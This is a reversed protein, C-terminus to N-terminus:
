LEFLRNSSKSSENQNSYIDLIARVKKLNKGTRVLRYSGYWKYKETSVRDTIIAIKFTNRLSSIENTIRTTNCEYSRNATVKKGEYLAKLTTIIADRM